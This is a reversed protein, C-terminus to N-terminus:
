MSCEWLNTEIQNLNSRRTPISGVWLLKASERRGMQSFVCPKFQSPMRGTGNLITLTNKTNKKVPCKPPLQIVIYQIQNYTYHITNSQLVYAHFEFHYWHAKLIQYVSYIMQREKNTQSADHIEGCIVSFAHGSRCCIFRGIPNQELFRRITINKKLPIKKFQLNTHNRIYNMLISVHFGKRRKRGANTAIEDAIKYNINFATALAIVTCNNTDELKSKKFGGDSEIIRM